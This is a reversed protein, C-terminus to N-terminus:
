QVVFADMPGKTMAGNIAGIANESAAAAAPQQSSKSAAARARSASKPKPMDQSLFAYRESGERASRHVDIYKVTKKKGPQTFQRYTDAAFQKIFLETAKAIIRTAEGSVKKVEKDLLVISRVRSLPFAIEGPPKKKAGSQIVLGKERAEKVQKEYEEKEKKAAAEYPAKDEPSMERWRAGYYKGKQGMTMGAVQDAFRKRADTMYHFYSSKPRKLVVVERPPEPQPESTLAAAAASDSALRPSKAAVAEREAGSTAALKRKKVLMTDNSATEIESVEEEEEEDNEGDGALNDMLEQTAVTQTLAVEEEGGEMEDDSDDDHDSSALNDVLDQTLPQEGEGGKEGVAVASAEEANAAGSEM